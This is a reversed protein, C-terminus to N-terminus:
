EGGPGHVVAITGDGRERVTEPTSGFVFQRLRGKRPAGLITLDYYQSQEVIAEAADSTEEIWTDIRDYPELRERADAVARNARERHEPGDMELAHYVDVWAGNAATLARAVDAAAKSHPGGAVALLMSAPTSFNEAGTVSIVTCDVLPGLKDLMTGRLTSVLGTTAEHEFLVASAEYDDVADVIAGEYSRSVRIAGDAHVHSDVHAMLVYRALQRHNALADESLSLPTQDPLVVPILVLLMGDASEVLDVALNMTTREHAGESVPYVVVEGVPPVPPDTPPEDIVDTGM